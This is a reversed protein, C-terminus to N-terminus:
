WAAAGPTAGSRRAPPEVTTTFLGEGERSHFYEKKAGVTIRAPLPEGGGRISILWEGPRDGTPEADFDLEGGGASEVVIEDPDVPTRGHCTTFVVRLRVGEDTYETRSVTIGITHPFAIAQYFYEPSFIRCRPGGFSDELYSDEFRGFTDKYILVERGQFKGYGVIAVAHAGIISPRGGPLRLVHQGLLMGHERLAKGIRLWTEHASSALHKRYVVLPEGDMCFSPVEYEMHELLPDRIRGPLDMRCVLRAYREPSFPVREGTIGDEYLLKPVYDTLRFISSEYISYYLSELMRPNVGYERVDNFVSRYPRAPFGCIMRWWDVVYSTAVSLCKETGSRRGPVSKLEITRGALEYERNCREITLRREEQTKAPLKFADRVVYVEDLELPDIPYGLTFGNSTPVLEQLPELEDAWRVANWEESPVKWLPSSDYDWYLEGIVRPEMPDVAWFGAVVGNKEMGVLYRALRGDRRDRVPLVRLADPDYWEALVEAYDHLYDATPDGWQLADNCKRIREVHHRVAQLAEEPSVGAREVSAPLVIRRTLWHEVEGTDYARAKRAQPFVAIFAALLTAAVLRAHGCPSDGSCHLSM